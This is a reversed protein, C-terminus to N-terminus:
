IEPLLHVTMVGEDMDISLICDDIAPILIEAKPNESPTVIYVNNAGTEMVDSLIGIVKGTEDKVTLGILDGVFYEGEELEIANERSVYLDKKVFREVDEIRDIDKFKLIVLNKFYRAKEATLPHMVSGMDAFVERLDDFRHVDETTPYVKVEGKLAHTSIITGVRLYEQM